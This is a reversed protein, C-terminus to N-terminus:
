EDVIAKLNTETRRVGLRAMLERLKPYDKLVDLVERKPIRLVEVPERAVVTASRPQNTIVAMEGFLAGAELEGVKKETGMDDIFVDASGDLLVYLADGPEGERVIKDGVQFKVREGAELLRRRGAEDLAGLVRASAFFNGSELDM